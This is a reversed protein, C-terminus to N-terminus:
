DKDKAEEQEADKEQEDELLALLEAMRAEETMISGM